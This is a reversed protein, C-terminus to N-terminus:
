VGSVNLATSSTELHQDVIQDPYPSSRTVANVIQDPYSRTAVTVESYSLFLSVNAYIDLKKQQLLSM